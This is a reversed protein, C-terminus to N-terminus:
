RRGQNPHGPAIKRHKDFNIINGSVKAKKVRETRKKLFKKFLKKMIDGKHNKIINREM